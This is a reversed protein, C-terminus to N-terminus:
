GKGQCLGELNLHLIKEKAAGSIDLANVAEISAKIERNAPFDSGWLLRDPGLVELALNLISISAAGSTDVYIRKLTEGPDEGMDNVIGRGLLMKYTRDFRGALFPMVGGFSSFVLKLGPFVRLLGSDILRALCISTDFSYQFVPTILPHRLREHGFPSLTTPHFFVPLGMDDAAKFFSLFRESDPYIGNGNTPMSFGSAGESAQRLAEDIMELPETLPVMALYYLRGEAAKCLANAADNYERAAALETVGKKLHFDTTPYSILARAVGSDDMSRIHVDVGGWGENYFSAHRLVADPLLHFHADFVKM